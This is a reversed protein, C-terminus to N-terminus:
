NGALLVRQLLPARDRRIAARHADKIWRKLEEHVARITNITCARNWQSPPLRSFALPSGSADVLSDGAALHKLRWEHLFAKRTALEERTAAFIM